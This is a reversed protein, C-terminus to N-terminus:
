ASQLFDLLVENFEHACEVNSLHSGELEVYSAGPIKDALFRGDVPPTAPDHRGSIVLTRARIGGVSEREDTDRISASCAAYGEPSCELLMRRIPEIVSSNGAVFAPTFWRGLITDTVATMGHGLVTDIRTKWSEASGIKAGTSCLVLKEIREPAMVGLRMGAMGGMSLGCFHAREIQLSDLLRVVDSALQENTYPGPTVSSLGHGRTDYRLVRFHRLLPAVQLDWMSLNAGLSSSLVVYPTGASADSSVDLRYHIRGGNSDVFPM